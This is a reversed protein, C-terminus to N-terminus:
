TESGNQEKFEKYAESILKLLNNYKKNINDLAKNVRELENQKNTLHENFLGWLEEDTMKGNVVSQIAEKYIDKIAM